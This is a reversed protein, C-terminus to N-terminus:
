GSHASLRALIEAWRAEYSEHGALDAEFGLKLYTKIAPLREDQTELVASANGERRMQHLAALSVWYGLGQGRAGPLVAVYHLYGTGPPWKERQWAAAVAAPSGEQELFLIREPRFAPEARMKEGFAFDRGFATNVIHEWAAPGWAEEFARLSVGTPLALPPLAGLGRRMVLSPLGAGTNNGSIRM